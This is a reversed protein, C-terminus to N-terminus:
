RFSLKNNSLKSSFSGRSVASTQPTPSTPNSAISSTRSLKPKEDKTTIGEKGKLMLIRQLLPVGNGSPESADEPIPPPSKVSSSSPSLIPPTASKAREENEQKEKLLRILM